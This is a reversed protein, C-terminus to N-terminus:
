AIDIQLMDSIKWNINDLIITMIIHHRSIVFSGYVGVQGTAPISWYEASNKLFIM